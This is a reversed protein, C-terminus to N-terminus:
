SDGVGVEEFRGYEKLFALEITGTPGNRQKSLIVEMINPKDSVKQYYDDRYLFSIVDADQEINGSERLDSMLPRKNQRSEVGRSLQSLLVIPVQLEMALMKLERTIEGIELDRRDKRLTSPTILQLYDILILHSDDPQDHVTKRITSRITSLTNKTDYIALKWDSVEGIARFAHDYDEMSFAMNRWKGANIFGESSLMRKLLQKTGMELSFVLSSGQNKCHGAALNLAFATKGVSPRAAVIILDGKQLGGTMQDFESLGTRNGTQVPTSSTLEQSIEMLYDYTTKEQGSSGIERYTTLQKILLELGEESPDTVYRRASETTKRLRYADFILQEHHKLSATSAVSEVMELLYTTGGVAKISKGLMTTVTVLDIKRNEDVAKKMAQFIRQHKRHYFHEEQVELGRFLSGDLMIAGLLTAEAEYNHINM